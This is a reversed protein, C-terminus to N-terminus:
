ALTLVSCDVECGGQCGRVERHIEYIKESLRISPEQRGLSVSVWRVVARPSFSPGAMLSIVLMLLRRGAELSLEQM